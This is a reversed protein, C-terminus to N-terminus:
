RGLPHVIGTRLLPTAGSFFIHTIGTATDYTEFSSGLMCAPVSSNSGSAGPPPSTTLVIEARIVLRSGSGGASSYPLPVSAIQGALATFAVPAGIVSGSENYFTVTGNCSPAPAGSSQAAMNVLNVQATETSALGVPPLSSSSLLAPASAINQAFACLSGLLTGACIAAVTTRHIM